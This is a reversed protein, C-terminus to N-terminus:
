GMESLNYCNGILNRCDVSFYARAIKEEEKSLKEADTKYLTMLRAQERLQEFRNKYQIELFGNKLYLSDESISYLTQLEKLIRQKKKNPIRM